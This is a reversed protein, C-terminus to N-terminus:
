LRKQLQTYELHERESFRTFTVMKRHNTIRCHCFLELTGDNKIRGRYDLRYEGELKLKITNGEVLWYRGYLYDVKDSEIRVGNTTTSHLGYRTNKGFSMAQGDDYFKIFSLEDCDPYYYLGKM